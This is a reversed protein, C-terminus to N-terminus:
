AYRGYEEWLRTFAEVEASIDSSEWLAHGVVLRSVGASILLPATTRTVAGDVQVPIEPHLRRFSRIRSPVEEDFPEGQRGVRRIGMFQVFDVFSLYPDLAEIPTTPTLAIGVSLLEPAFGKEYGYHVHMDKFFQDLNTACEVHVVIRTAGADICRGALRSPQEVMLDVETHMGSGIPLPLEKAILDERETFPWTAPSAFRGDVIDIQVDSVVGEIRSLKTEIDKRSPSLIAPVITTMPERSENGIPKPTTSAGRNM